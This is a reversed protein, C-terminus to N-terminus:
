RVLLTTGKQFIYKKTDRNFYSLTWVYVGPRQLQGNITGDWKRTWNNTQFVRKGFRNYVNFDLNDAKYANLPHLYDNNQDGNPSFATPVAIFCTPVVKIKGALTDFCNATNQVVLRVTYEKEVGLPPYLKPAPNKDNSFTNDGFSWNWSTIDGISKDVFYATDEPCLLNSIDFAARLENNLNVSISDDASCVGNSVALIIKQPGYKKSVFVPNQQDSTGSVDFWWTWKNVNNRGDHSCFITNEKCGYQVQYDFRANVTDYGTFSVQANSPTSQGCEDIITNGDTGAKLRVTYVGGTVITASLKLIIIETLNDANCKGYAAAISVPQPGSILFDSGNSAISNCRMPKKFVLELSDPQCKTVPKISDFPTPQVPLVQVPLSSGPAINRACNDLLTNGDSGNKITLTYNGPPLPSSLTLTLSDLDFGTSCAIGSANIVTAIAPSVSFDSGDAALSNCKMKKNIALKIQTGDCNARATKLSPLSPDTINATGGGFSLTYGSQSDTFHSIMLLYEHNAQLVAMSNFNPFNYGGCNFLGTGASSAGTKGERASWNYCVTLSANTYVDNPNRGTIDFLQWDYDDGLDTPTIVFGFTGATFCTFKYWFPNKDTYPSLDNCRTPIIRNNCIPVTNQTFDATGCVPFATAPNQGLTSCAQGFFKSCTFFIFLFSFFYKCSMSINVNLVLM